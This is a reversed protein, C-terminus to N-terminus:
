GALSTEGLRALKLLLQGYARRAAHSAMLGGDGSAASRFDAGACFVKEGAGTLVVAGVAPDADARDLAVALEDLVEPSLTNRQPERDITLRAQRGQIEYRISAM